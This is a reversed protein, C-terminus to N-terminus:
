TQTRLARWGEFDILAQMCGWELVKKELWVLSVPKTLFDNCGAALAEHRDSQLSSATLAVIIVPSKFSLCPLADSPDCEQAATDGITDTTKRTAFVGISNCRELRRIERTADLGNMVPMQIDMLVLHIGGKRWKDVAEKGNKATACRIKRKRMFTELIRQNIMNDEVILVSISPIVGELLGSIGISSANNATGNSSSNNAVAASNSTTALSGNEDAAVHSDGASGNNSKSASRPTELKVVSHTSSHASHAPSVINLKSQTNTRVGLGPRAPRPTGLTDKRPRGSLSGGRTQALEQETLPMGSGSNGYARGPIAASLEEMSLPVASPSYQRVDTLTDPPVSIPPLGNDMGGMTAGDPLVPSNHSNTSVSSTRAHGRAGGRAYFTYSGESRGSQQSSATTSARALNPRTAATQSRYAARMAANMQLQPPPRVAGDLMIANAQAKTNPSYHQSGGTSLSTARSGTSTSGSAGTSGASPLGAAQANASSVDVSIGNTSGATGAMNPTPPFYEFDRMDGSMLALQGALPSNRAGPALFPSARAATNPVQIVLADEVRQGGPFHSAVVKGIEDDVALVRAEISSGKTQGPKVVCISVDPSDFNRALAVPYKRFVADKVDDILDSERLQISAPTGNTGRKIWLRM